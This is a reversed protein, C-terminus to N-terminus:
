SEDMLVFPTSVPRNWPRKLPFIDPHSDLIRKAGLNAFNKCVRPTEISKAHFQM